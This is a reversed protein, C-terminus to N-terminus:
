LCCDTQKQIEDIQVQKLANLSSVLEDVKKKQEQFKKSQEGKKKMYIDLLKQEAQLSTQLAKQEDQQQVMRQKSAEIQVDRTEQAAKAKEIEKNSAGNKKLELIEERLRNNRENSANKEANNLEKVAEATKRQQDEYEKNAQEAAKQAKTSSDFVKMLATVGVILAVIAMTILIVPNSALAANWLWQAAAVAKTVISGQGKVVNLAAEAKTQM